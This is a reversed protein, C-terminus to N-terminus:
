KGSTWLWILCRWCTSILALPLSPSVGSCQLANICGSHPYFLYIKIATPRFHVKYFYSESFIAYTYKELINKIMIYLGQLEASPHCWVVFPHCWISLTALMVREHCAQCKVWVPMSWDVAHHKSHNLCIIQPNGWSKM